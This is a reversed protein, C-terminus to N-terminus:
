PGSTREQVTPPKGLTHTCLVNDHAEMGIECWVKTEEGEMLEVIFRDDSRGTRSIRVSRNPDDLMECYKVPIPVAAGDHDVLAIGAFQSVFDPM